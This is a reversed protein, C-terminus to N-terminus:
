CKQKGVIYNSIHGHSVGVGVLEMPGQASLASGPLSMCVGSICCGDRLQVSM